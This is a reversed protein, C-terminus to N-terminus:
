SQYATLTTNTHMHTCYCALCFYLTYFNGFKPSYTSKSDDFVFLQFSMERM